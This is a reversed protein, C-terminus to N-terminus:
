LSLNIRHLDNLSITTGDRKIPHLDDTRDLSGHFFCFGSDISLLAKADGAFDRRILTVQGDLLNLVHDFGHKHIRSAFIDSTLINKITGFPCSLAIQFVSSDM